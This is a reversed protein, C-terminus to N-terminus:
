DRQLRRNPINAFRKNLDRLELPRDWEGPKSMRCRECERVCWRNMKEADNTPKADSGEYTGPDTPAEGLESDSLYEWDDEDDSLQNKPRSNGGWAKNCKEDCRVKAPQGAYTILKEM